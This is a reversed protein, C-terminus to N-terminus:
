QLIGGKIYELIKRQGLGYRICELARTLRDRESEKQILYSYITAISYPYNRSSKRSYTEILSYLANNLDDANEIKYRRGYFTDSLLRNFEDADSAHILRTLEASKLKFNCPILITLVQAPSMNFYFKGRYLWSLNLLDIRMGYNETLIRADPGHSKRTLIRWSLKYYYLGLSLEYDFLKSNPRKLTQNLIEYYESGKTIEVLESISSSSSLRPVDLKSHTYFFDDVSPSFIGDNDPALVNRLCKKLVDIEFTKFYLNLYYRQTNDAFRYIKKFDDYVGNALLREVEGRHLAATDAQLFETRYSTHEKLYTVFESVSTLCAIEEYMKLSILNGELARIKTTIGSYSVNNHM